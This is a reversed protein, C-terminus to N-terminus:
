QVYQLLKPKWITIFNKGPCTIDSRAERHGIINQLEVKPYYRKIHAALKQLIDDTPDQKEYDNDLCIGVSRRNIEWNGAHWGIQSDELLKEFTGDMRMLWHYGWFVQKGDKFHGSWLPKGELDKEWKDPHAFNPAYINLLHVSNLYDLTYALPSSTHHIVITDIPLRQTDFNPGSDGLAVDGKRLRKAFFQRVHRRLKIFEESESGLAQEASKLYDLLEIYWDSQQIRSLWYTEDFPKM